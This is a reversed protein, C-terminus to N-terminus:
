VAVAQLKYMTGNDNFRIQQLDRRYWIQIKGTTNGLGSPDITRSELEMVAQLGNIASEVRHMDRRVNEDQSLTKSELQILAM